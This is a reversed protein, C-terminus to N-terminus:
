TPPRVQAPRRPSTGPAFRPPGVRARVCRFGGLPDKHSPLRAEDSTLNQFSADHWWAGGRLRRARKFPTSTWEMVSGSMDCLGSASNGLPRSCVPWTSGRGCGGGDDGVQMIAHRCSPPEDGWPFKGRATAEALWEGTTPLRAHIWRCFADAGEWTVCNMPHSGGRPSGYNGESHRIIRRNVSSRFNSRKSGKRGPAMQGIAAPVVPQDQLV